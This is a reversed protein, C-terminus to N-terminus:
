LTVDHGPKHGFRRMVAGPPADSQTVTKGDM